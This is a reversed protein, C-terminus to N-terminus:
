IKTKTLLKYLCISRNCSDDTNRLTHFGDSFLILIIILLQIREQIKVTFDLKMESICSLFCSWSGQVFLVIVKEIASPRTQHHLSRSLSLPVSARLLCYDACAFLTLVTLIYM